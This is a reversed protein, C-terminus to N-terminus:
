LHSMKDVVQIQRRLAELNKQADARGQKAAMELYMLANYVSKAVVGEKGSAYWIGLEVQASAFGADAAQEFYDFATKLNKECGQGERYMVGLNFQARLHSHLAAKNFYSFAKDLDQVAVGEKGHYYWIGLEAQAIADGADAAQQFYGLSKNLDIKCREGDRYIVGLNVLTSRHGQKAAREFYMMAKNFDPLAVGKQGNFYTCGVKFQADAHTKAAKLFYKFAAQPSSKVGKGDRYSLGILFSARDIGSLEWHRIADPYSIETGYGEDYMNGLRFQAYPDEKRAHTKYHKFLDIRASKRQAETITPLISDYIEKEPPLLKDPTIYFEADWFDSLLVMDTLLARKHADDWLIEHAPDFLYGFHQGERYLEGDDLMWKITETNENIRRSFIRDVIHSIARRDALTLMGDRLGHYFDHVSYLHPGFYHNDAEVPVPAQQMGVHLVRKDRRKFFSITAKTCEGLLPVYPIANDNYFVKSCAEFMSFSPIVMVHRKVSVFQSSQGVEVPYLLKIIDIVRRHGPSWTHVPSLPLTITHYYKESDPKSELGSLLREIGYDSLKFYKQIFDKNELISFTRLEPYPQRDDIHLYYNQIRLPTGPIEDSMIIIRDKIFQEIGQYLLCSSAVQAATVDGRKLHGILAYRPFEKYHELDKAIDVIGGKTQLKLIFENVKSATRANIDWRQDLTLYRTLDRTNFEDLPIFTDYNLFSPRTDIFNLFFERIFSDRESPLDERGRKRSGRSALDAPGLYGIISDAIETSVKRKASDILCSM